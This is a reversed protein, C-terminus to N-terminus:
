PVAILCRLFRSRAERNRACAGIDFQREKQFASSARATAIGGEAGKACGM